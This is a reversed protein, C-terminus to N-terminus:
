KLSMSKQVYVSSFIFVQQMMKVKLENMMGEITSDHFIDSPKGNLINKMILINQDDLFRTTGKFQNLLQEVLETNNLLTKKISENLNIHDFFLSLLKKRNEQNNMFYAYMFDVVTKSLLSTYKSFIYQKLSVTNQINQTNLDRMLLTLDVITDNILALSIKNAISSM